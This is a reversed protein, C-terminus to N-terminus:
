RLAGLRVALAAPSVPAARQEWAVAVRHGRIATLPHTSTGNADSLPLIRDEFIHGMSRSMALGIRPTASNPDEFGVIVVEGDAAVSTRGLRDGYIIAVPSHFTVGSDMSHSFFLGPGEVALLSYAVHVYGSVPDAAISPPERRCGSVARDTTDVATPVSWDRGGNASRAVLLRASSDARPAWWAAFLIPRSDMSALRLSGPCSVGAPPTVREALSALTDPRLSGGVDLIWPGDAPIPVSRQATWVIPPADCSAALVALAFVLVIHAQQDM